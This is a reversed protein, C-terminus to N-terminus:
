LRERLPCRNKKLKNNVTSQPKGAIVRGTPSVFTYHAVVQYGIDSYYGEIEILTGHLLQGYRALQRERRYGKFFAFFYFALFFGIFILAPVGPVWDSSVPYLDSIAPDQPDYVIDIKMGKEFERYDNESMHHTNSYSRPDGNPPIHNFQYTVYYRTSDGSSYISKDKVVAGTIIGAQNLRWEQMLMSIFGYFTFLSIFLISLLSLKWLVTHNCMVLRLSHINPRYSAIGLAVNRNKPCLVFPEESM